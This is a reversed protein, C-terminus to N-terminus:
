GQVELAKGFESMAEKLDKMLKKWKEERTSLKANIKSITLQASRSFPSVDSFSKGKLRQQVRESAVPMLVGNVQRLGKEGYASMAAESFVVRQKRLADSLKANYDRKARYFPKNRHSGSVFQLLDAARPDLAVLRKYEEENM